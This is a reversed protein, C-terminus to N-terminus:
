ELRDLKYVGNVVGIQGIQVSRESSWDRWNTCEM